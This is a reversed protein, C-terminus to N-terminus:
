RRRTWTLPFDGSKPTLPPNNPDIPIHWTGTTKGPPLTLVGRITDGELTLVGSGNRHWDKDHDTYEEAFTCTAKNGQVTGEYCGTARHPYPKGDDTERWLYTARIRDGSAAITVITGGSDVWEGAWHGAAAPAGGGEVRITQVLDMYNGCTDSVRYTRNTIRPDGTRGSGQRVVQDKVWTINMHANTCVDVAVISKTDPPPIPQGQQLNLEPQGSVIKPPSTNEVRIMQVAQSINGAADRAQFTRRIIKPNGKCGVGSVVTDGAHRMQVGGGCNDVASERYGPQAPPIDRECEVSLPNLAPFEPPTKDAVTIEQTCSPV